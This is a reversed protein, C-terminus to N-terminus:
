QIKGRGTNIVTISIQLVTAISVWVFYPLQAAAILHSHPWVVVMAWVITGLVIVIDATALWLNKLGFLVPTFILNTVLNVAFPLAVIWPIKGRFCQIFVFGFSFVILPYLLTWILGITSPSPTWSPKRLNDYWPKWRRGAGDAELEPLPSEDGIKPRATGGRTAILVAMTWTPALDGVPLLKVIFSPIFAIHWGILLTLIAAMALDLGDAIPSFVGEVSAPLLAVQVVDAAVAIGRALWVRQASKSSRVKM